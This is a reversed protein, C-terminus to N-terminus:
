NIAEPGKVNKKATSLFFILNMVNIREGTSKSKLKPCIGMGMPCM